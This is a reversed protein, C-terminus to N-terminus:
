RHFYARPQPVCVYICIDYIYIFKSILALIMFAKTVHYGEGADHNQWSPLNSNPPTQSWARCTAASSFFRFSYAPFNSSIKAAMSESPLPTSLASQLEAELWSVLDHNGMWAKNWISGAPTKFTGSAIVLSPWNIAAKSYGFILAYRCVKSSSTNSTQSFSQHLFQHTGLVCAQCYFMLLQM